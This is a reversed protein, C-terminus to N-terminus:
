LGALFIPLYPCLQVARRLELHAWLSAGSMSGTRMDPLTLWETLRPSRSISAASTTEQQVLEHRFLSTYSCPRSDVDPLEPGAPQAAVAVKEPHGAQAELALPEMGHEGDADVAALRATQQGTPVGPTPIPLTGPQSM